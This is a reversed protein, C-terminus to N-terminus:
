QPLLAYLCTDRLCADPARRENRMIGELAFGSRELMSRSPQNSADTLCELRVGALTDLALESLAQVAERMLGQNQFRQRCWYGLEFKPLTWDIHHLSTNGVFVDGEKLFMAYALEQRLLFKAQAERCWTESADCSPEFMAWPLSAGQARLSDLTELVGEFVQAGDGPRPCRLILRPTELQDPIPRLVPSTM